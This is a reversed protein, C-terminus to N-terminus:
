VANVSAVRLLTSLFAETSAGERAVSKEYETAPAFL